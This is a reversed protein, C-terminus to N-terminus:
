QATQPGKKQLDKAKELHMAVHTRTEELHQKVSDNNVMSIANDLMTLAETHGNVMATIYANEFDQGEKPQLMDMMTAGKSRIQQAEDNTGISIGLSGALQTTKDMNESHEKELMKAYDMASSSIKKQQALMAADIENQNVANLKALANTENLGATGNLGNEASNDMGNANMNTTDSGMAPDNADNTSTSRSQCGTGLLGIFLLFLLASTTNKTSM